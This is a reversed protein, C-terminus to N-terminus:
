KGECVHLQQKTHKALGVCVSYVRCLPISNSRMTECLVM